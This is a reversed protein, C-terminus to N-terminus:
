PQDSIIHAHPQSMLLSLEQALMIPRSNVRKINAKSNAAMAMVIQTPQVQYEPAIVLALNAALAEEWGPPLSVTDTLALTGIVVRTVIQLSSSANPVPYVRITGNPMTPLYNIHSPWTSSTTKAPLMAYAEEDIVRVPYSINSYLIYAKEIEVPRTTVLDTASPGISYSSRAGVMPVTEEQMSYAMLRENNWSSLMANLAILADSSETTTLSEGSNVVSILRGARDVINQVTSV